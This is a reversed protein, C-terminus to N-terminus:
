VPEIRSASPSRAVGGLAISHLFVGKRCNVEKAITAARMAVMERFPCLIFSLPRKTTKMKPAAPTSLAEPQLLLLLLPLVELLLSNPSDHALVASQAVGYTQLALAHTRPSAPATKCSEL